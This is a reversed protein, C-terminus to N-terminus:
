TSCMFPVHMIVVEFSSLPKRLLIVVVFDGMMKGPLSRCSDCVNRVEETVHSCSSRLCVFEPVM